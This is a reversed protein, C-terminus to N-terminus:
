KPFSKRELEFGGSRRRRRRRRKKKKKETVEWV